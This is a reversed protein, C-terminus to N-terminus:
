QVGAAALREATAPVDDVQFALHNFGIRRHHSPGEDPTQGDPDHFHLLQIEFPPDADRLALTIHDATMDPLGMYAAPEGGAILAVHTKDFGLLAFFDIAADPDQVALTIHDPARLGM